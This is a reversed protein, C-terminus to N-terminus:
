KLKQEIRKLLELIEGIYAQRMEAYGQQQPYTQITPYTCNCIPGGWGVACTGFFIAGGCKVCSEIRPTNM